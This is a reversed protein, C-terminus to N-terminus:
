ITFMVQRCHMQELQLRIMLNHVLDVVLHLVQLWPLSAAALSSALRAHTAAHTHQEVNKEQEYM